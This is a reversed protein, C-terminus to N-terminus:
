ESNVKQIMIEVSNKKSVPREIEVGLVSASPAPDLRIMDRVWSWLTSRMVPDSKLADLVKKEAQKKAIGALRSVPKPLGHKIGVWAHFNAHHDRLKAKGGVLDSGQMRGNVLPLLLAHAHPTSEDLHVDFSLVPCDFRSRTWDLCDQFFVELNVLHNVPLSFMIEIASVENKRPKDIGAEQKLKRAEADIAEPTGAGALCYNLHMKTADIHSDAGLERQITRKNHRAAALLKGKGSLKALCLVHSASM